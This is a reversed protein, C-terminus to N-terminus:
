GVRCNICSYIVFKHVDDWGVGRKSIIVVGETGICCVPTMRRQQKGVSNSTCLQMRPRTQWCLNWLLFITSISITVNQEFLFVRCNPPNLVGVVLVLFIAFASFNNAIIVGYFLYLLQVGIINLINETMLVDKSSRKLLFFIKNSKKIPCTRLISFSQGLGFVIKKLFNSRIESSNLSNGIKMHRCSFSLTKYKEANQGIRM